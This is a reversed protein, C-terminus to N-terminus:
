SRFALLSFELYGILDPTLLLTIKNNFCFTKITGVTNVTCYTFYSSRHPTGPIGGETAFILLPLGGLTAPLLQGFGRVTRTDPTEWTDTSFELVQRDAGPTSPSASFFCCIVTAGVVQLRM